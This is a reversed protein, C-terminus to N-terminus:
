KTMERENIYDKEIRIFIEDTTRQTELMLRLGSLVNLFFYM